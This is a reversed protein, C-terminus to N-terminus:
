TTEKRQGSNVWDPRDRKTWHPRMAALRQLIRGRVVREAHQEDAPSWEAGDWATAPPVPYNTTFGRFRMEKVIAVHRKALSRKFQACWLQHGTGLRFGVLEADARTAYCRPLERYEAILHENCLDAPDIGVNVRTM